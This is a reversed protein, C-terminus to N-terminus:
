PSFFRGLAPRAGLTAFYSGTAAVANIETADGAAGLIVRRPTAAAASEYAQKLAALDRYRPYSTTLQLRALNDPEAVGPPAALMLRSVVGFMAANACIALGFTLVIATALAPERKLSRLALALTRM